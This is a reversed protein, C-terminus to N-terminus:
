NQQMIGFLESPLGMLDQLDWFYVVTNVDFPEDRPVEETPQRAYADDIIPMVTAM